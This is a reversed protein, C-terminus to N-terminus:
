SRRHQLAKTLPQSKRLVLDIVVTMVVWAFGVETTLGGVRFAPDNSM